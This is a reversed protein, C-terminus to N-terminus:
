TRYASARTLAWIVWIDLGIVLASWWPYYPLFFFNGIASLVAFVVAVVQAWIRGAFVYVGSLALLVGFVLHIWGWATTSLDFAYHQARVFFNDDIIAALGVIFEFAGILILMSGAFVIGGVAWVSPRSPTPEYHTM